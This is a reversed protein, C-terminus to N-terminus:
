RFTEIRSSLNKLKSETVKPSIAIEKKKQKVEEKKIIKPPIAKRKWVYLKVSPYFTVFNKMVVPFSRGGIKLFALAIGGGMLVIALLIAIALPLTYYALFVTAGPILLCLFQKFTLPGIIKAEKEIFKPVTFEM